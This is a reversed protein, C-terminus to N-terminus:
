HEFDPSSMAVLVTANAVLNKRNTVLNDPSTVFKHSIKM